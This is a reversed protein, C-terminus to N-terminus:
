PKSKMYISTTATDNTVQKMKGSGETDKLESLEKKENEIDDLMKDAFQKIEANKGYKLETRIINLGHDHHMSMLIIFDKDINGSQTLNNKFDNRAKEILSRMENVFENDVQMDDKQSALKELVKMDDELRDRIRTALTIIEKDSGNTIVNNLLELGGRDHTLIIVAFDQDPNGTMQIDEMESLTEEIPDTLRSGQQALLGSLSFVSILFLLLKKKMIILIQRM